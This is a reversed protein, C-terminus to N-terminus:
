SELKEIRWDQLKYQKGGAEAELWLVGPQEFGAILPDFPVVSGTGAEDIELETEVQWKVDGQWRLSVVLKAMGKRIGTIVLVPTIRKRAPFESFLVVPAAVGMLSFVGGEERRVDDCLLAAVPEVEGPRALDNM